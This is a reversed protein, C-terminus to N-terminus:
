KYTLLHANYAIAQLTILQGFAQENGQLALTIIRDLVKDSIISAIFEEVEISANTLPWFSGRGTKLVAQVDFTNHRGLLRPVVGHCNLRSAAIGLIDYRNQYWSRLDRLGTSNTPIKNLQPYHQEFMLEVAKRDTLHRSSLSMFFNAYEPTMHPSIFPAHWELLRPHYSIFNRQRTWLDLMIIKKQVDGDFYDMAEQLEREADALMDRSFTPNLEKLTNDTWYKSQPFRDLLSGATFPDTTPKLKSTHQGAPVGTMFGSTWAFNRVHNKIEGAFEDQYMGHFHLSGGFMAGVNQLHRRSLFDCPMKIHHWPINKSHSLKKASNVEISKKHGYTFSTLSYENEPRDPWGALIMRSDYGSSLPLVINQKSQSLLASTILQENFEKLQQAIESDNAASRTTTCQISHLPESSSQCPTERYNWRHREDPHQLKIHKVLTREWLYHGYHLFAVVSSPDMDELTSETCLLAAPEINTLCLSRNESYYCPISGVYDTTSKVSEKSIQVALFRDRITEPHTEIKRWEHGSNPQSLLPGVCFHRTDDGKLLDSLVGEYCFAVHIGHLTLIQFSIEYQDCLEQLHAQARLFGSAKSYGGWLLFALIRSDTM